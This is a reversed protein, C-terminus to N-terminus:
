TIYLYYILRRYHRLMSPYFGVDDSRVRAVPHLYGLNFVFLHKTGKLNSTVLSVVQKLALPKAASHKHQYRKHLFSSSQLVFNAYNRAVYWSTRNRNGASGSKRLLLPDPVPYVWGRSYLQPTVQFFYNRSQALFGLIRGYPHQVSRVVRGIRM